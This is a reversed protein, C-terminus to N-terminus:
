ALAWVKILTAFVLVMLVVNSAIFAMFRKPVNNNTVHIVTHVMRIAVYAWALVMFWSPHYKTLVSMIMIVYFIFPVQMLNNFNNGWKLVEPQWSTNNLAVEKIKTEGARVANNRKLGTMIGLAFTWIILILAPLLPQM